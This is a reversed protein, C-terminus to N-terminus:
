MLDAYPKPPPTVGADKAKVDEIHHAYSTSRFAKLAGCSAAMSAITFKTWFLVTPSAYKYSEEGTLMGQMATFLAILVWLSGDVFVANIKM